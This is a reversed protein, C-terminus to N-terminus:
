KKMKMSKMKKMSKMAKMAELTSFLIRALVIMSTLFILARGDRLQCHRLTVENLFNAASQFM